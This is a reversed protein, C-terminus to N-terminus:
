PVGAEMQRKEFVPMKEFREFETGPYTVWGWEKLWNPYDRYIMIDSKGFEEKLVGQVLSFYVRDESVIPVLLDEEAWRAFNLELYGPASVSPMIRDRYRESVKHAADPHVFILVRQNRGAYLHWSLYNPWWGVHSLAPFLYVPVLLLTTAWHLKGKWVPERGILFLLVCLVIMVVNWPWVVPNVNHGLPGLLLLLSAHMGIAVVAGIRQTCKFFLMIALTMEIVPVWAGLAHLVPYDRVIFGEWFNRFGAGFKHLGSWLYIAVMILRHIRLLAASDGRMWCVPLLMLSYQYFWPQWRMQDQLVLLVVMSAVVMSPWRGRAPIAMAILSVILGSLIVVDLPSPLPGIVPVMPYLRDNIWVKWSIAMGIIMGLVAVRIVWLNKTSADM